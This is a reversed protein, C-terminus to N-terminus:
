VPGKKHHDKLEVQNVGLARKIFDKLIEEANKTIKNLFPSSLIVLDSSVRFIESLFSNRQKRELHELIDLACVANFSSDAFPIRLSDAQIFGRENNWKLDLTFTENEPLFLNILRFTEKSHWLHSLGGIDLVKIKKNKFIKKIIKSTELYRSYQDFPLSIKDLDEIMKRM